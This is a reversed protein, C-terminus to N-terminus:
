LAAEYVVEFDCRNPRRQNTVICPDVLANAALFAVDSRGVGHNSLTAVVGCDRRLTELEMVLSDCPTTSTVGRADLGIVETM